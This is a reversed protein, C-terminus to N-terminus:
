ICHSHRCLFAYWYSSGIKKMNDQSQTIKQQMKWQVLRQQHVTGDILDNILHVAQGCSIPSGIKGLQIILEVIRDEFDRLPSQHGVPIGEKNILTNRSM